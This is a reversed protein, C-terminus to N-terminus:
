RMQLGFCFKARETERSGSVEEVLVISKRLRNIIKDPDGFYEADNQVGSELDELSGQLM